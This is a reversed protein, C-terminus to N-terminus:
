TFSASELLYAFYQSFNAGCDELAVPPYSFNVSAPEGQSALLMGDGVSSGAREVTCAFSFGRM